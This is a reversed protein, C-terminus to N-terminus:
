SPYEGSYLDIFLGATDAGLTVWYNDRKAAEILGLWKINNEDNVDIPNKQPNTIYKNIVYEQSPCPEEPKTPDCNHERADRQELDEPQCNKTFRGTPSTFRRSTVRSVWRIYSAGLGKAKNTSGIADCKKIWNDILGNILITYLKRVYNCPFKKPLLLRQASGNTKNIEIIIADQLVDPTLFIELNKLVEDTSTGNINSFINLFFNDNLSKTFIIWKDAGGRMMKKTKNKFKRKTSRKASRKVGKRFSKKVSKKM